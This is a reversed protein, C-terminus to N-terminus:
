PPVSPLGVERVRRGRAGRRGRRLVVRPPRRGGDAPAGCRPPGLPRRLERGAGRQRPRRSAHADFPRPAGHLLHMRPIATSPTASRRAPPARQTPVPLPQPTTVIHQPGIPPPPTPAGASDFQTYPLPSRMPWFHHRPLSLIGHCFVFPESTTPRSTPACCQTHRQLPRHPALLTSRLPPREPNATYPHIPIADTTPTDPNLTM